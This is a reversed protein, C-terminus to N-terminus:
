DGDSGGDAGDSDTDIRRGRGPSLPGPAYGDSTDNSTAHSERDRKVRRGSYFLLLGVIILSVAVVWWIPSSLKVAPAVALVGFV